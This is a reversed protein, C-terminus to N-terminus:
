HPPPPATPSMRRRLDDKLDRIQSLLEFRDGVRLKGGNTARDASAEGEIRAVAERLATADAQNLRGQALYRDIRDRIHTLQVRISAQDTSIKPVQLATHQASAAPAAAILAAAALAALVFNRGSVM